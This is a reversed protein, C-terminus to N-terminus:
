RKGLLRVSGQVSATLRVLGAEVPVPAASDSMGASRAMALMPLPRPADNDAYSVNIERAVVDGYGFSQAVEAARRRFLRIAEAALESSHRERLEGSVSFSSAVVTMGALRGALAAVRATDRGEVVLDALGQWANISGNNGYRPSINFGGTRVEVAPSSAARRAEALAADLVLKVQAQVAGSDSGQRLVRLTISLTDPVVDAIASASLVVVPAVDGTAPTPIPTQAFANALPLTIAAALAFRRAVAGLAPSTCSTNM